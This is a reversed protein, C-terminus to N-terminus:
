GLAEDGVAALAPGAQRVVASLASAQPLQSAAYYRATAIKAGDFSPDGRSRDLRRAAAAAARGLQWGGAVAVSLALYPVAAALIEAPADRARTLIWDTAAEWAELAAVIHQGIEQLQPRDSAELASASERVQAFIARATDGGDRLLKRVVLDNGQIGTTGEYITTIRADRWHQAAGTEEIYGMGGHVQIGLSSVDVAM